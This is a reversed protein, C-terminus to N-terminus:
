KTEKKDIQGVDDKSDNDTDNDDNEDIQDDNLTTKKTQDLELDNINDEIKTSTSDNKIISLVIKRNEENIENIHLSLM